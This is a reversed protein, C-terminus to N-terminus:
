PLIDVGAQVVGEWFDVKAAGPFKPKGAKFGNVRPTQHLAKAVSARVEDPLTEDCLSLIVMRDTLYWEHHNLSKLCASAVRPEAEAFGIM